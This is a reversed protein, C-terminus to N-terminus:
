VPCCLCLIFTPLCGHRSRSEFRSSGTREEKVDSDVYIRSSHQLTQYQRSQTLIIVLNDRTTIFLEEM